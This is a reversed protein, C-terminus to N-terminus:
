DLMAIDLNMQDMTLLPMVDASARGQLVRCGHCIAAVLDFDWVGDTYQLRRQCMICFHLCMPQPNLISATPTPMPTPQQQPQQSQSPGPLQLPQSQIPAPVMQGVLSPWKQQTSQNGASEKVHYFLQRPNEPFYSAEFAPEDGPLFDIDVLQEDAQSGVTLVTKSFHWNYLPHGKPVAYILAQRIIHGQLIGTDPHKRWEMRTFHHKKDCLHVDPFHLPHRVITKILQRAPDVVIQNPPASPLPQLKQQRYDQQTQAAVFTQSIKNPNSQYHAGQFPIDQQLHQQQLYQQPQRYDQQFHAAVYPQNIRNVNSFPYPEEFHSNQQFSHQSPDHYRGIQPMHPGLSMQRQTMSMSSQEHIRKSQQGSRGHKDINQKRESRRGNLPRHTNAMHEDMARQNQSAGQIPPRAPAMKAQRPKSTTNNKRKKSVGPRPFSIVIDETIDTNKILIPDQVTNVIDEPLVSRSSCDPSIISSPLQFFM